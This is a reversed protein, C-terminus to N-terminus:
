HHEILIWHYYRKWLSLIVQKIIVNHLLNGSNIKVLTHANLSREDRVKSKGEEGERLSLLTGADTSVM